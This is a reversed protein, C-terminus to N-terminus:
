TKMMIRRKLFVIHEGGLPAAYAYVNKPSSNTKFKLGFIWLSFRVLFFTGCYMQSTYSFSFFFFFLCYVIIICKFSSHRFSKKAVNEAHLKYVTRTRIYWNATIRPSVIRLLRNKNKGGDTPTERARLDPRWYYCWLRSTSIYMYKKKFINRRQGYKEFLDYFIFLKKKKKKRVILLLLMVAGGSCSLM